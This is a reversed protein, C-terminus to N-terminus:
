FALGDAGSGEPNSGSRSSRRMRSRRTALSGPRSRARAIPSVETRTLKSVQKYLEARKSPDAEARARRLLGSVLSPDQASEAAYLPWFIDDPDLGVATTELTLATKSSRLTAPDAARLRAIVGIKGLDAALSQALSM